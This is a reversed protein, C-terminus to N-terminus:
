KELLVGSMFREKRLLLSRCFGTYEVAAGDTKVSLGKSDWTRCGRKRKTYLTDENTIAEPIEKEM